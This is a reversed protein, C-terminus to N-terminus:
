LSLAQRVISVGACLSFRNFLASIPSFVSSFCALQSQTLRVVLTWALLNSISAEFVSFLWAISASHQVSHLSQNRHRLVTLAWAVLFTHWDFHFVLQLSQSALSDLIIALQLAFSAIFLLHWIAQPFELCGLTLLNLALWHSFVPYYLGSQSSQTAVVTSSQGSLPASLPWISFM